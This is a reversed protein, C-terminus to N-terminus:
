IDDKSKSKEKQNAEVQCESKGLLQYVICWSMLAEFFTFLSLILAIWSKQWIAFIFLLIAITLRFIRGSTGINKKFM